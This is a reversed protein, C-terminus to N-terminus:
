AVPKQFLATVSIYSPHVMGRGFANTAKHVFRSWYYRARSSCPPPYQYQGKMDRFSEVPGKGPYDFFRKDMTVGRRKAYEEYFNPLIRWADMPYNHLPWVSPTLVACKGGPRLLSIVNDLVRIPDFTHELVNLVLVTGFPESSKFVAMDEAREFNAVFDVTPSKEMDTGFYPLGAGVIIERCTEGSYGTGLELVRGEIANAALIKRIWNKDDNVM